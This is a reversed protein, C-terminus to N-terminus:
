KVAVARILDTEVVIGSAVVSDVVRVGERVIVDSWLVSREV